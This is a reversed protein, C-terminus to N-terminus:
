WMARSSRWKGHRPHTKLVQQKAGHKHEVVVYWCLALAYHKAVSELRLTVNCSLQPVGLWWRGSPVHFHRGKRLLVLLTAPANHKAPTCSQLGFAFSHCGGRTTRVSAHAPRPLHPDSARAIMNGPLTGTGLKARSFLRLALPTGKPWRNFTRAASIRPRETTFAARRPVKSTNQGDAKSGGQVSCAPFLGPTRTEV